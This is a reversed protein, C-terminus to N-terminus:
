SVQDKDNRAALKILSEIKNEGLDLRIGTQEAPTMGLQSHERCYNYHIRITEIRQISALIRSVLNSSFFAKNNDPRLELTNM